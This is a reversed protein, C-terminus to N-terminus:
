RIRELRREREVHQGLHRSGIESAVEHGVDEGQEARCARHRALLRRHHEEAKEPLVRVGDPRGELAQCLAELVTILADDAGHNRDYGLERQVVRLAVQWQRRQEVAQQPLDLVRPRGDLDHLEEAQQARMLRAQALLEGVHQCRDYLRRGRHAKLELADLRGGDTDRLILLQDRETHVSQAIAENAIRVCVELVQAQCPEGVEEVRM